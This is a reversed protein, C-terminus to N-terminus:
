PFRKKLRNLYAAHGVRRWAEDNAILCQITQLLQRAIFWCAGQSYFILPFACHKPIHVAAAPVPSPEAPTVTPDWLPLSPEPSLWMGGLVKVPVAECQVHLPSPNTSM